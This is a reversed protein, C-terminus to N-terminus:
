DLLQRVRKLDNWAARKLEAQELLCSPHYSVVCPLGNSLQHTRDRLKDLDTNGHHNGPCTYFLVVRVGAATKDQLASQVTATGAAPLASTLGLLVETRSLKIAQLMAQLLRSSQGAFPKDGPDAHGDSILLLNATAPGGLFVATSGTTQALLAQQELWPVFSSEVTAETAEAPVPAAAAEVECPSAQPHKPPQIAMRETWAPIGMADLYRLQQRSYM